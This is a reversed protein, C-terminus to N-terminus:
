PQGALDEACLAAHTFAEAAKAQHDWDGGNFCVKNEASRALGLATWAAMRTGLQGPSMSPSCAAPSPLASKAADVADRLAKCKPPKPDKPTGPVPFGPPIPLPWQGPYFWPLPPREPFRSGMVVCPSVQEVTGFPGAVVEAYAKTGEWILACAIAAKAAELGAIVPASVSIRKYIQITNAFAERGSPDINNVPDDSAYLYKHLKAPASFDGDEPDRSLFRGTMPNMYRARLDYLGLDSDYEEGQYLFENPTNGSDTWSNGFADYEYSDTVAGASNTLQRVNGGGDYGYFSPTWTNSIVQNESIRQLGYTYTRTVVGGTLEDFVQPLGTPNVNDEVLCRTTVGNATKAVRNGFVDYIVSVTGGNMSGLRNESDYAFSKGRALFERRQRTRRMGGKAFYAFSPAGESWRCAVPRTGSPYGV